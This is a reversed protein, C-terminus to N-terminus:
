TIGKGQSYTSQHETESNMIDNNFISLTDIVRRKTLTYTIFYLLIPNNNPYIM